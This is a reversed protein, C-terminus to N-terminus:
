SKFVGRCHGCIKAAAPVEMACEPCVKTAPPAPAAATEKKKMTNVTKVLMFVAFAVILFTVITNLFLGYGIAVAGAERAEKLALYPGPNMAGPKLVFFLNSFDVGGLVYGIPPMLIEAVLTGVIPSFAGGVIIGIAMDFVNGRLIFEKFEKIM